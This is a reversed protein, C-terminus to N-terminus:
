TKQTFFKRHAESDFVPVFPIKKVEEFGEEVTPEQFSKKYMNYAIEPIRRVAGSTMKVRVFNLHEAIEFNTEIVFCRVPINERKALDIFNRRSEKSPNTNDVVVSSGGRIAESALNLCKQMTGVTDRNIWIYGKPIFYRKTFTSKGSAPPGCMLIMEQTSKAYSEFQQTFTETNKHDSIEIPDFSSDWSFKETPKRLFFETETQFRIGVNHAFKRDSCSFDKKRDGSAPRGAADGVYFSNQLDPIIGDNFKSTLLDWM